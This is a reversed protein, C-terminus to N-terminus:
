LEKVVRTGFQEDLILMPADHALGLVADQIYLGSVYLYKRLFCFTFRM